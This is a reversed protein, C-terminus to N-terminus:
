PDMTSPKNTMHMKNIGAWRDKAQIVDFPNTFIIHMQM